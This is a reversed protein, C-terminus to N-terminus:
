GPGEGAPRSEGREVAEDPPKRPSRAMARPERGTSVWRDEGM